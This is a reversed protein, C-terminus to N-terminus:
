RETTREIFKYSLFHDGTRNRRWRPEEGEAFTKEQEITKDDKSSIRQLVSTKLKLSPWNIYTKGKNNRRKTDYWSPIMCSMLLDLTM